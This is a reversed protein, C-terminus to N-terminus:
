RWESEESTKEDREDDSDPCRARSESRMPRQIQVVILGGTTSTGILPQSLRVRWLAASRSTARSLCDDGHM